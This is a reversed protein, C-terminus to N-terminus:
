LSKKMIQYKTKLAKYRKDLKRLINAAWGMESRDVIVEHKSIPLEHCPDEDYNSLEELYEIVDQVDEDKTARRLSNM